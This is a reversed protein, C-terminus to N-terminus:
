TPPELGDRPALFYLAKCRFSYPRKQKRPRHQGGNEGSYAIIFSGIRPYTADEEEQSFPAM